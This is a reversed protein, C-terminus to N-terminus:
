KMISNFLDFLRSGVATPQSYGWISRMMEYLLFGTFLLILTTPLHILSWWGWEAPPAEVAVPVVAGRPAPQEAAEEVMLEESAEEAEAVTAEEAEAVEEAELATAEESSVDEDLVVIESGTEGEGEDLQLEFDSTELNIESSSGTDLTLDESSGEDKPIVMDTRVKVESEGEDLPALGGEDLSLEFEGSSDAAGGAKAAAPEGEVDSLEFTLSEEESSGEELPVGRDSPKDLNIGSAGAMKGSQGGLDLVLDDSSSTDFISDSPGKPAPTLDFESSGPKGEEKSLEFPEPAPKFPPKSSEEAKRLEAELDIEETPSSLDVDRGTKRGGAELRVGSDGTGGPLDRGLDLDVGEEPVLKVDSDSDPVLRSGSDGPSKPKDLRGSSPPKSSPKDMSLEVDSGQQVLRVDSDSGPAPKVPLDSLALMETQDGPGSDGELKFPFVDEPKDSSQGAGAEGLPLEVDSALGRRRALEEIEARRFRLTGRDMFARVERKNAMETLKERPLGLRKAAEELTYFDQPM